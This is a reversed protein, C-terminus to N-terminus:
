AGGPHARAALTRRQARGTQGDLLRGLPDKRNLDDGLALLGKVPEKQGAELLM